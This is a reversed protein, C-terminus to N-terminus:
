YKNQLQGSAWIFFPGGCWESAHRNLNIQTPKSFTPCSISPSVSLLSTHMIGILDAVDAPILMQGWIFTHLMPRTFSGTLHSGSVSRKHQGSACVCVCM